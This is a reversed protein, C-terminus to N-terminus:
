VQVSRLLRKSVKQTNVQINEKTYRQTDKNQWLDLGIFMGELGRRGGGSKPSQLMFHWFTLFLALPCLAGM